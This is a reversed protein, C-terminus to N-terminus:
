SNLILVFQDEEFKEQMDVCFQKHNPKDGRKLAQFLQMKYPTMRLCKRVIHWVTTQFIQPELNRKKHVEKPNASINGSGVRGNRRINTTTWISRKVRCPCRGYQFMKTSHGFICKLQHMKLSNECLHMSCLRRPSPKLM